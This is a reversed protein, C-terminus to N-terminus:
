ARDGTIRSPGKPRYGTARSGVWYWDCRGSTYASAQGSVQVSGRRCMQALVCVRATHRHRHRDSHHAQRERERERERESHRHICAPRAPATSPPPLVSPRLAQAGGKAQVTRAMRQEVRPHGGQRVRHHVRAPTGPRPCRPRRSACSPACLSTMRLAASWPPRLRWCGRRPIRAPV